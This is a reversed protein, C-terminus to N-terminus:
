PTEQPDFYRACLPRGPALTPARLMSSTLFMLTSAGNLQCVMGIRAAARMLSTAIGSLGRICDRHVFVANRYVRALPEDEFEAHEGLFAPHRSLTYAARATGALQQNEMLFRLDVAFLLIRTRICAHLRWLAQGAAIMARGRSKLSSATTPAARIDAVLADVALVSRERWVHERRWQPLMVQLQQPVRERYGHPARTLADAYIEVNMIYLLALARVVDKEDATAMVTPDCFLCRAGTCTRPEGIICVSFRCRRGGAGACYRPAQPHMQGDFTPNGPLHIEM